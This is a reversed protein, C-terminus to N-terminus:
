GEAMYERTIVRYMRGGEERKVEDGLISKRKQVEIRTGDEQEVFDVVDGDEDEDEESKTPPRVLHISKVRQNPPLTHDWIVRLGSVIPFRSSRHAQRLNRLSLARGEQAPWKSLASEM